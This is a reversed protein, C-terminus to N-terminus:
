ELTAPPVHAAQAPNVLEIRYLWPWHKGTVWLDGTAPDRAIGNLVDTGPKREAEPLLGTLDITATVEGSDPNIVVIHDTGWINAWIAGDVWELENLRRVPRGGQTVRLTRLIKGSQPSMTYLQDSGDSYILNEGDNTLGWGEGPLSLHSLYDFDSRRYTFVVRNKWTLQYVADDLVTLGEAFVRPHLRRGRELAMDSFRYRLLRSKGYQGTSVYLMGDHIELGQVFNDRPQARQELVRVTYETLSLAPAAWALLVIILFCRHM